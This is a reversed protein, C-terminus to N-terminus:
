QCVDFDMFLIFVNNSLFQFIILNNMGFPKKKEGKTWQSASCGVTAGGIFVFVDFLFVEFNVKLLLLLLQLLLSLLRM